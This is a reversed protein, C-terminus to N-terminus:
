NVSLRSVPLFDLLLDSEALGVLIRWRNLTVDDGKPVSEFLLEFAKALELKGEEGMEFDHDLTSLSCPCGQLVLDEVRGGAKVLLL